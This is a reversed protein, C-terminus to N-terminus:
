AELPCLSALRLVVLRTLGCQLGTGRRRPRQCAAAAAARPARPRPLHGCVQGAPAARAGCGRESGGEAHVGAGRAAELRPWLLHLLSAKCRGLCEFCIPLLSGPWRCRVGACSGTCPAGAVHGIGLWLIMDVNPGARWAWSMSASVVVVRRGCGAGALSGGGEAEQYLRETVPGEGSAEARELTEAPPGVEKCQLPPMLGGANGGLSAPMQSWASVLGGAAGADTYLTM